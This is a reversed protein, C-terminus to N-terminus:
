CSSPARGLDLRNIKQQPRIGGVEQLCLASLERCANRPCQEKTEVITNPQVGPKPRLRNEAFLSREVPTTDVKSKALGLNSAFLFFSGSWSSTFLGGLSVPSCDVSHAAVSSQWVTTDAGHPLAMFQSVWASKLTSCRKRSIKVYSTPGRM